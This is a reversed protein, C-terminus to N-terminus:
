YAVLRFTAPELGSSTMPNKLKGLEELRLIVSPEVLGRVSILVLFIRM